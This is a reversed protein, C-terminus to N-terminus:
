QTLGAAYRKLKAVSADGTLGTIAVALTGLETLRDPPLTSEREFLDILTRQQDASLPFPLALPEAHERPAHAMTKQSFVVQTGAVIDGIRRFHSDFLMSILGTFYFLPLFDAVLLLNRLASERWGVPLGDARLVQIGCLKKGFTRGKFYVEGIIPYGWFSVFALLQLVGLGLKTGGAALACVFMFVLWIIFDVLWAVARVVASAPTLQLQVGEPTTLSLRGDLLDPM